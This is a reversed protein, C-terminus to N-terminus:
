KKAYLYISYSNYGGPLFYNGFYKGPTPRSRAERSM